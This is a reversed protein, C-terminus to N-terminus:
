GRLTVVSAASRHSALSPVIHRERRLSVLGVAPPITIRDIFSYYDELPLIPVRNVFSQLAVFSPLHFFRPFLAM